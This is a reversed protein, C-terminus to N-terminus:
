WSAQYYFSYYEDKIGALLSNIMDVTYELMSYYYEDKVDSGFFFGATPELSLPDDITAITRSAHESEKNISSLINKMTNEDDTFTITNGGDYPLAESRNALASVCSDRLSILDQKNLSIRQCEDVGNACNRVIWGHIANAKRWYGVQKSVRYSAYEGQPLNSMGSAMGVKDFQPNDVRTLEGRVTEFDYSTIHKEAYLYM